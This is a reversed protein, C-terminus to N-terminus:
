RWWDGGRQDPRDRLHPHDLVDAGNMPWVIAVAAATLALALFGLMLGYFEADSLLEGIMAM